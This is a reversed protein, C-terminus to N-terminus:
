ETCEMRGFPRPSCTMTKPQQRPTWNRTHDQAAANEYSRAICRGWDQTGKVAGLAECLPGYRAIIRQAEAHAREEPTVVACGALAAVLVLTTRM